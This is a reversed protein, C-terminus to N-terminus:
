EVADEIGISSEDTYRLSRARILYSNALIQNYTGISDVLNICEDFFYNHFPPLARNTVIELHVHSAICFEKVWSIIVVAFETMNAHVAFGVGSPLSWGRSVTSKHFVKLWILSSRFLAIYATTTHLVASPALNM